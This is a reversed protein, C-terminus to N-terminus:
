KVDFYVAVDGRTSMGSKLSSTLVCSGNAEIVVGSFPFHADRVTACVTTEGADSTYVIENSAAVFKVGPLNVESSYFKKYKPAPNRPSLSAKRKFAGVVAGVEGTAFDIRMEVDGMKSVKFTSDFDVTGVFKSDARAQSVGMLAVVCAFGLVAKSKVSM